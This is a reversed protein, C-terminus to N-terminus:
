HTDVRAVHSFKGPPKLVSILLGCAWGSRSDDDQCLAAASEPRGLETSPLLPQFGGIYWSVEM